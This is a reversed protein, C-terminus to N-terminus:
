YLVDPRVHIPVYELDKGIPPYPIFAHSDVEEKVKDIPTAATREDIVSM